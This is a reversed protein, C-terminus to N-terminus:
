PILQTAATPYIYYHLKTAAARTAVSSKNEGMFHSTGTTQRGGELDSVITENRSEEQSFMMNEGFPRRSYPCRSPPEQVVRLFLPVTLHHAFSYEELAMQFLAHHALTELWAAAVLVATNANWGNALAVNGMEAQLASLTRSENLGLGRRPVERGKGGPGVKNIMQHMM